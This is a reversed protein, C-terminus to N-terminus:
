RWEFISTLSSFDDTWVPVKVREPPFWRARRRLSGFSAEAEALVAWESASKGNEVDDDPDAWTRLQWSADAALATVMQELVLYRNSLHMAILGGPKLKSRYLQLAERTLLHVPIADSSFADLAILDFEADPQRQLQLRADGAVVEWRGACCDSLYRFLLANTAVNIAAPDIEFFTWREGPRAYTAMAGSGLGIVAVRLASRNTLASHIDGFPGKQHYYALPECRRQPDLFQRGHVTHGHLLEHFRGETDRTVQTVGFFSRETHVRTQLPDTGTIGATFMAAGLALASLKPQRLLAAALCVPVAYAVGIAVRQEAWGASRLLAPAILTAVGAAFVWLASAAFGLEGRRPARWAKGALACSAVLMLPYEHVHDFLLPAFLANFSGGLAGGAALWLYFETLHTTEPRTTFLRAHCALAALLFVLLHMPLVLWVPGTARMIIAFGLAIAGFPLLKGSWRGVGGLRPSFAVIFTVLYLALPVVWLLPISAIDTTLFQTVGLLLSSPVAALLLWTFRDSWYVPRTGGDANTAADASKAPALRTLLLCLGILVALAGYAWM